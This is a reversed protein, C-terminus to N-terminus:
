PGAGWLAAVWMDTVVDLMEGRDADWGVQTWRYFLSQFQAYALQARTRASRKSRVTSEDLAAAIIGVHRDFERRRLERVESEISAAEELAIAVPRILDWFKFAAELWARISSRDGAHIARRLHQDLEASRDKLRHSLEVIVDAKSGFHLYFTARTVGAARAIDDVTTTAYSRDVFSESAAEVLRERTTERQADRQTRHQAPKGTVASAVDGFTADGAGAAPRHSAVV